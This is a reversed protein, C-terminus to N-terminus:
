ANITFKAGAAFRGIADVPTPTPVAAESWGPAAEQPLLPMGGNTNEDKPPPDEVAEPTEAEAATVDMAEASNGDPVRKFKRRERREETLFADAETLLQMLDKGRQAYEAEAARVEEKSELHAQSSELLASMWRRYLKHTAENKQQTAHLDALQETAARSAAVSAQNQAKLAELRGTLEAEKKRWSTQEREGHAGSGHRRGHPSRSVSRSM